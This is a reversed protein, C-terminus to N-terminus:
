KLRNYLWKPLLYRRKNCVLGVVTGKAMQIRRCAVAIANSKIHGAEVVLVIADVSAAYRLVINSSSVAPADVIIHNFECRLIDFLEAMSRRAAPYLAARSTVTEATVRALHGQKSSHLIDKVSQAPEGRLMELLDAEILLVSGSSSRALEHALTGSIYSVGAGPAPSTFVVIRAPEAPSLSFAAPILEAFRSLDTVALDRGSDEPLILDAALRLESGRPAAIVNSVTM